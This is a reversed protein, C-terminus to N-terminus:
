CSHTEDQVKYRYMHHNRQFTTVTDRSEDILESRLADVADWQRLLSRLVASDHGMATRAYTRDLRGHLTCNFDGECIILGDHPQQLLGMERHLAERKVPEHPAYMNVILTNKVYLEATVVMWRASWHHRRYPEVKLVYSGPRRLIALGCHSAEAGSWLSFTDRTRCPDYGWVRCSIDALEVCREQAVHTEHSLVVGHAGVDTRSKLWTFLREPREVSSALGGTNLTLLM